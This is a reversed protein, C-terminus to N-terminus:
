LYRTLEPRTKALEKMIETAQKDVLSV